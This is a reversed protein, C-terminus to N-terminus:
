FVYDGILAKGTETCDVPTAEIMRFVFEVDYTPLLFMCAGLRGNAASVYTYLQGWECNDKITKYDCSFLSEPHKVSASIMDLLFYAWQVAYLDGVSKYWTVQKSFHQMLKKIQGSTWTDDDEDVGSLIDWMYEIEITTYPYVYKKYLDSGIIIEARERFTMNEPYVKGNLQQDEPVKVYDYGSFLSKWLIDGNEENFKQVAKKENTDKDSLLILMSSAMLFVEGLGNLSRSEEERHQLMDSVGGILDTLANKCSTIPRITTNLIAM